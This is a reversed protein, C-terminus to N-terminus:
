LTIVTMIRAASLLDAAPSRISTGVTVAARLLTWNNLDVFVM